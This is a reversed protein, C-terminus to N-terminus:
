LIFSSICLHPAIDWSSSADNKILSAMVLTTFLKIHPAIKSLSNSWSNNDMALGIISGTDGRGWAQISGGWWEIFTARKAKNLCMFFVGGHSLTLAAASFFPSDSASAHSFISVM